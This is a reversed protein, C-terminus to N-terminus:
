PQHEKRSLRPGKRCLPDLDCYKCAVEKEDPTVPFTGTALRDKVEQAFQKLHDSDVAKPKLIKGKTLSYYYPHGIPQDPFLTPAAAERYLTVQLDVKCEGNADKIGAPAQSSTKYDVLVIGEPTQDIRDIRGKVPLGHWTSKFPTESGVITANPALFDPAMVARRLITVHEQRRSAWAVLGTLDIGEDAKIQQEAELFAAELNDLIGSRLDDSGQARKAAIELTGHYLSGRIDVGLDDQAEDLERLGLAYTAWWRFPCQGLTTLQSASYSWREFTVPLGTVGDYEDFPATSERRREVEWAQRAGSLVDDDAQTEDRLAGQRWEEPSAAVGATPDAQPKLAQFLASPLAPKGQIYQPYTFRLSQTGNQLVSWFLRAEQRAAQETTEIPFGQNALQKRTYFDLVPDDQVAQPFRGEANGLVIAHQFQSGVLSLPTHLEVGGRGPHVAVAYLTLLDLLDDLFAERSLHPEPTHAAWLRLTDQLRYYALLERAWEGSRHKISWHHFLQQMRDVWGSPHDSEPWALPSVDLGLAEWSSLGKPHTLRAQEWQEPSLRPGIPHALFRATTEFPFGHRLADILLTLWAGLRTEALPIQYLVRVPLKYEWAIDLVMPGYLRDDRAILVIENAPVGQALLSKTQKLAHRVEAELHPCTVASAQEPIPLNKLLGSTWTRDATFAQREAMQIQWGRAELFRASQLNDQFLPHDQYPLIVCSDDGALTDILTLEADSLHLYGFVLFSQRTLSLQAAATIAAASAVMRQEKLRRQYDATLQALQQCRLIPQQALKDLDLNARLATAIAPAWFKAARAPDLLPLHQQLTARLTRQAVLPPAVAMGSQQLRERALKELSQAFLKQRVVARHSPAIIRKGTLELADLSPQPDLRVTRAM